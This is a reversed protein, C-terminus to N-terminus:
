GSRPERRKRDTLIREVEAVAIQERRAIEAPDFGYDALVLVQERQEPDAPSAPAAKELSPGTEEASASRGAQTGMRGEAEALATELRAAARDAEAILHGLARMKGDLQASLDRATEHMQVEWQLAEAPAGLHHGRRSADPRHTRVSVAQPKKKQRVAYRRIRVLLTITFILIAGVLCISAWDVKAFLVM